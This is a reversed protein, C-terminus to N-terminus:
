SFWAPWPCLTLQTPDLAYQAASPPPNICIRRPQKPHTHTYTPTHTLTHTHVHSKVAETKEMGLTWNGSGWDRYKLLWTVTFPDISEMKLALSWSITLVGGVRWRRYEIRLWKAGTITPNGGPPASTQHGHILHFSGWNKYAKFVNHIDM